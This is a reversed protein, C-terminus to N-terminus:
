RNFKKKTGNRSMRTKKEKNAKKIDASEFGGFKKNLDELSNKVSVDSKKRGVPKNVKVEPEPMKNLKFNEEPIPEDDEDVDYMANKSM